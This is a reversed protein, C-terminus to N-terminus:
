VPPCGIKSGPSITSDSTLYRTTEPKNVYKDGNKDLLAMAVLMELYAATGGAQFGLLDALEQASKPEKLRDFTGTKLAVEFFPMQWSAYILNWLKHNLRDETDALEIKKM